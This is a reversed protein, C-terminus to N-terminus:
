SAKGEHGADKGTKKSNFLGMLLLWFEMLVVSPMDFAFSTVQATTTRRSISRRIRSLLNDSVDYEFGALAM